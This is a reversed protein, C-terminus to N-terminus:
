PASTEKSAFNTAAVYQSKQAVRVALSSVSSSQMIDFISTDAGATGALWNRLEVAVLSDVGYSALTLSPDVEAIPLSFMDALKRTLADTCHQVVQQWSTARAINDKLSTVTAPSPSTGRKRGEVTANTKLSWFRRDHKWAVDTTENWRRIGTIVQASELSRHPHLMASEIIRMTQLEEIPEFGIKILREVVGQYEAVYGVGKVPGLDVSVAPLGQSTRYRAFADQFTSGACYNAQSTSGAVGTLSSLMVFFDLDSLQKHLNWTAAHKPLLAAQWQEFTMREL